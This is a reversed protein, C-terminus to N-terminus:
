DVCEQKFYKKSSNPVSVLPNGHRLSANKWLFFINKLEVVSCGSGLIEVDAHQQLAEYCVGVILNGLPFNLM